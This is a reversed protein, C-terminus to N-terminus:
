GIGRGGELSVNILYQSFLEIDKNNYIQIINQNIDFVKPLRMNLGYAPNQVLKPLM